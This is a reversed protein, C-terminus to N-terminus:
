ELEEDDQRIPAFSFRHIECPGDDAIAQCHAATGYGKNQAFGYTPYREDMEDMLRDRIVKAMVSAAAISLSRCDGKILSTEPIFAMPKLRADLLLYDPQEPLGELARRAALGTAQVIGIKDIEGPEAFGVQWSAAVQPIIEAWDQRARATMQKSDKVGDLLEELDPRNPLVVVGVAVPGALSGRGAEDIGAIRKFGTRWLPQEFELNPTPPLLSLDFKKRAM